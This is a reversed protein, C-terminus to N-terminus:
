SYRAALEARLSTPRRTTSGLEGDPFTLPDVRSPRPLTASVATSM